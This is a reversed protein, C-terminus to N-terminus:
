EYRNVCEGQDSCKELAYWKCDTTSTCYNGTPDSEPKCIGYQPRDSAACKEGKRCDADDQCYFQMLAVTCYGKTVGDRPWAICLEHRQPSCDQSSSCTHWLIDLISVCYGVTNNIPRGIIEKETGRSNSRPRNSPCFHVFYYCRPVLAM